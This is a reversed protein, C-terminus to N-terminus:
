AAKAERTQIGWRVLAARIDDISKFACVHFGRELLEEIVERQADSLRANPRDAKAELFYIRERYLMALDPMGRRLGPVANGARGLQGNKKYRRAANPIAFVFPKPVVVTYLYSLADRQVKDELRVRRRALPPLKRM